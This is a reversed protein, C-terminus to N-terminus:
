KIVKPTSSQYNCMVWGESYSGVKGHQCSECESTAVYQNIWPCPICSHTYIQECDDTPVKSTKMKHFTNPLIGPGRKVTPDPKSEAREIILEKRM